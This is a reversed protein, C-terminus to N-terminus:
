HIYGLQRLAARLDGEFRRYAPVARLRTLDVREGIANLYTTVQHCRRRSRGVVERLAHDLAQKPESLREVEQPRAPIGLGEDDLTTGFAGRLADGDALAWAETERVPIVAVSHTNTLGEEQRILQVAPEIREQRARGADGNADAHIFLIHFAGIDQRAAELIRAARSCDQHAKPTDLERFDGIEIEDGGYRLCLDEVTRYLIRGLLRYDTSGEAFLALGLYRM